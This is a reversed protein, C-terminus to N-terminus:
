QKVWSNTLENFFYVDGTDVEIFSSGTAVGLTPKAESSAGYIEKFTIAVGFNDVGIINKVLERM